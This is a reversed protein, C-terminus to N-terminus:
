EFAARRALARRQAALAFVGLVVAWWLTALRVLLTTATADATSMAAVEELVGTMGAETVGLGGPMMALAGVITPASYGFTAELMDIQVGEFGRAILWLAVCETGWSALALVTAVLLARPRTLVQLADYAERLKPSLKRLVPLKGAVRLALEGLPRWACTLWLAGVVAAGGIAIPLGSPLALAGLAVLLVLAFLDTLREAVVIPATRAVPVGHAEHLLVSKLVEGVKGPTVSMVFGATFIRASEVRPVGRVDLISLYAEWRFFRIVYNATALVLGGVFYIWRYRGLSAALARVDGYLSLAAFVVVGLITAILLQRGLNSRRPVGESPRATEADANEDAGSGAGDRSTSEERDTM